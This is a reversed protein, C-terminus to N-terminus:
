FYLLNRAITKTHFPSLLSGYWLPITEKERREKKRLLQLMIFTFIVFFVSIETYIHMNQLESILTTNTLKVTFGTIQCRSLLQITSTM